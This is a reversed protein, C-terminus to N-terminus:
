EAKMSPLSSAGRLRSGSTCRRYKSGSYGSNEARVIHLREFAKVLAKLFSSGTGCNLAVALSPSNRLWNGAHDSRERERNHSRLRSRLRKMAPSDSGTLNRLAWKHDVEPQ